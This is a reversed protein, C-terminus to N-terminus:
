KFAFNHTEDPQLADARVIAINGDALLLPHTMFFCKGQFCNTVAKAARVNKNFLQEFLKGNIIAERWCHSVKEANSLASPDLQLLIDLGLYSQLSWAFFFFQGHIM